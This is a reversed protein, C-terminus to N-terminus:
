QKPKAKHIKRPMLMKKHIIAAFVSVVFLKTLSEKKKM